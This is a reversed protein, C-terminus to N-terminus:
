MCCSIVLYWATTLAADRDYLKSNTASLVLNTFNTSSKSLEYVWPFSLYGLIIVPDHLNRVFQLYSSLLMIWITQVAVFM